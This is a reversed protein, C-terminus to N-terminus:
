PNLGALYSPEWRKSRARIPEPSRVDYVISMRPLNSDVQDNDGSCDNAFVAIDKERPAFGVRVKWVQPFKRSPFDLGAFRECCRQLAFQTFFEVDCDVDTVLVVCRLMVIRCLGHLQMEEVARDDISLGASDINRFKSPHFRGIKARIVEGFRVELENFSERSRM